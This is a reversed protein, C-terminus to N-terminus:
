QGAIAPELRAIQTIVWDRGVQEMSFHVTDNVKLDQLLAKDRVQFPMTMAMMSVGQWDGHKILVRQAELDLKRIVGDASASQASATASVLVLTLVSLTTKLFHTMTIGQFHQKLLAHLLVTAVSLDTRSWDSSLQWNTHTCTDTM